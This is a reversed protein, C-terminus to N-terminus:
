VSEGVYERILGAVNVHRIPIFKGLYESYKIDIDVKTADSEFAPVWFESSIRYHDGLKKSLLYEYVLQKRVSRERVEVTNQDFYPKTLYKFDVVICEKQKKGIEEQFIVECKQTFQQLVLLQPFSELNNSICQMTCKFGYLDKRMALDDDERLEENKDFYTEWIIGRLIDIHRPTGIADDILQNFIRERSDFTSGSSEYAAAVARGLFFATAPGPTTTKLLSFIKQAEARQTPGHCSKIGQWFEQFVVDIQPSGTSRNDSLSQIRYHRCLSERITDLLKEAVVCDPFLNTGNIVFVGVLDPISHLRGVLKSHLRLEQTHTLARPIIPSSDPLGTTDCAIIASARQMILHTLCLAEFVPAFTSIGWQRGQDNQEASGYLFRTLAEYLAHYGDDKFATNKDIISLRECLIDRTHRWTDFEFLGDGAALHNEFFREGLVRIDSALVDSEELLRKVEILVFCYMQVIEVPELIVQHRPMVMEDVIFDGDDFYIACDLYRHLKTNDLRESRGLRQALSLIALEDHADLISDLMDLHRYYIIESNEHEGLLEMGGQAGAQASDRDSVLSRQINGRYVRLTKYLDLFADRVTGFKEAPAQVSNMKDAWAMCGKPLRLEGQGIGVFSYSNGGDDASIVTLSSFDFM